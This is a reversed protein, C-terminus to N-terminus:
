PSDATWSSPRDRTPVPPWRKIGVEAYAEITPDPLPPGVVQQLVLGTVFSIGNLFYYLLHLPVVMLAFLPGRLRAFFLWLPANIALVALTSVLSGGLLWANYFIGALMLLLCAVWVLVTNLKETWRLNLVGTRM